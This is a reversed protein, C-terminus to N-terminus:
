PAVYHNEGGLRKWEKYLLLMFLVTLVYCCIVWLPLFRYHFLPAGEHAKMWDLWLGILGGACMGALAQIIGGASGIQAYRDRPLIKMGLPMLAANSLVQTTIHLVFLAMYLGPAWASPIDFIVFVLQLPVVILLLIVGIIMTRLPHWRDGLMWAPYILLASGIGAVGMLKGYHDLDLGVSQAFFVRFLTALFCLNWFTNALFYYWYIKVCFGERFYTKAHNMWVGGLKQDHAPPPYDGEQVSLSMVM